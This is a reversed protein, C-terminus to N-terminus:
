AETVEVLEGVVINGMDTSICDGCKPCRTFLIAVETKHNENFSFNCLLDGCNKCSVEKQIIVM